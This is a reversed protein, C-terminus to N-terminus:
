KKYYHRKGEYLSGKGSNKKAELPRLNDLAWCKQFNPHELSDYPLAAQPIIHDVNWYTGYNDWSMHENFQKEIHSKLQKPTYPLHEFTTGGKVNNKNKIAAYVATGVNKRMKRIPTMNNKRWEKQYANMVEKGGNDRWTKHRELCLERNDHYHKLARKKVCDKCRTDYGDKSGKSNKYFNGIDQMRGEHICSEIRCIKQPM